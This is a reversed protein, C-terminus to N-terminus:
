AVSLGAVVYVSEYSAASFEDVFESYLAIFFVRLRPMSSLIFLSPLTEKRSNIHTESFQYAASQQM